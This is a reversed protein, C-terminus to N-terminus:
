RTYTFENSVGGDPNVVTIKVPTGKPCMNKLASGKKAVVHTSDKYTTTPVQAGNIKVVCGPKFNSGYIHLKFPDTAKTVSTITPPTIVPGTVTIAVTATATAATNDTVTVTATYSGATNYTHSVVNGVGTQGDGFDWAYTYPSQGGTVAATLVVSLPANGSTPAGTATVTMAVYDVLNFSVIPSKYPGPCCSDEWAQCVLVHDGFPVSTADWTFSYEGQSDKTTASGILTGTTPDNYDTPDLYFRVLTVPATSLETYMKAAVRIASGRVIDGAMPATIYPSPGDNHSVFTWSSQGNVDKFGHLGCDDAVRIKLTHSGDSLKTTDICIHQDWSPNANGDPQGSPVPYLVWAGDDISYAIQSVDDIPATPTPVENHYAAADNRVLGTVTFCLDKCVVWSSVPDCIGGVPPANCGADWTIDYTPPMNIAYTVPSDYILTNCGSDTVEVRIPSPGTGIYRWTTTDWNYTYTGDTGAPTSTTLTKIIRWRSGDRFKFVVKTIASTTDTVTVSLTVTGQIWGGSPNPNHAAVVDSTAPSAAPDTVILPMDVDPKFTLAGTGFWDTAYYLYNGQSNMGTLFDFPLVGPQTAPVFAPALPDTGIDVLFIAPYGYITDDGYVAIYQDNVQALRTEDYPPYAVDSWTYVGVLDTVGTRNLDFYINPSQSIMKIPYISGAADTVYAIQGVIVVDLLPNALLLSGTDTLAAGDFYLTSYRGSTDTVGLFLQDPYSPHDFSKVNTAAGPLAWSSILAPTAPVSMDVFNVSNTTGVVLMDGLMTLKRVNAGGTDYPNTMSVVAPHLKDTVNVTWVYRSGDSIYIYNGDPSGAAYWIGHGTPDWLYSYTVPNTPDTNDIIGIGASGSPVYLYNRVPIVDVALGGTWYEGTNQFTGGSADAFFRAGGEQCAVLGLGNSYAGDLTAYFTTTGFFGSKLHTEFQDTWLGVRNQSHTLLINDDAKKMSVIDYSDDHQVKVYYNNLPDHLDPVHYVSVWAANDYSVPQGYIYNMIVWNYVQWPEYNGYLYEDKYFILGTNYWGYNNFSGYDDFSGIYTPPSCLLDSVDYFEYYGNLVDGCIAVKQEDDIYIDMFYGFNYPAVNWVYNLTAPDWVTLGHSYAWDTLIWYSDDPSPYADLFGYLAGPGYSLWAPNVPDSVDFSYTYFLCFVLAIGNHIRVRLPVDGWWMEVPHTPDNAAAFYLNGGAGWVMSTGDTDATWTPGGMWYYGEDCLSEPTPMGKKASVMRQFDKFAPRNFNDLNGKFDEKSLKPLDKHAMIKGQTLAQQLHERSPLQGKEKAFTMGAFLLAMIVVVGLFWYRKMQKM